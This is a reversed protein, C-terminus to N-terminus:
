IVKIEGSNIKFENEETMLILTGDHEINTIKGTIKKSGNNWEVDKNLINCNKIWEERTKKIGKKSYLLKLWYSLREKYTSFFAHLDFERGVQISISTAKNDLLSLDEKSCNINIGIGVILKAIRSERWVSEALIGALKDEGIYVDNPWKIWQTKIEYTNLIDILALSASAIHWLNHNFPEEPKLLFSIAINKNSFGSWNKENRGRGQTQNFTYIITKDDIEKEKLYTNTSGVSELYITDKFFDSM